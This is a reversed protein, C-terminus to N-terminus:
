NKLSRIPFKGGSFLACDSSVSSTRLWGTSLLRDAALKRRTRDRTKRRSTKLPNRTSGNVMLSLTVLSYEHSCISSGEPCSFGSIHTHRIIAPPAVLKRSEFFGGGRGSVAKERDRLSPLPLPNLEVRDNADSAHINRSGGSAVRPFPLVRCM